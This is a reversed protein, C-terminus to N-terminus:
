RGSNLVHTSEVNLVVDTQSDDLERTELFDGHVEVDVAVAGQKAKVVKILESTDTTGDENSVVLLQDFDLAEGFQLVDARDARLVGTNRSIRTSSTDVITSGTDAEIPGSANKDISGSARYGIDKLVAEKVVAEKITWVNQGIIEVELEAVWDRGSSRNADRNADWFSALQRCRTGHGIGQDDESIGSESSDTSEAVQFLDIGVDVNDVVSNQIGNRCESM